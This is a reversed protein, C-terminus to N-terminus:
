RATRIQVHCLVIIEDLEFEKQKKTYKVSQLTRINFSCLSRTQFARRNMVPTCANSSVGM